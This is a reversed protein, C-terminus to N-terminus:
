HDCSTRGREVADIDGDQRGQLPVAARGNLTQRISHPQRWPRAKLAYAADLGRFDDGSIL